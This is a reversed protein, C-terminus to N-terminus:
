VLLSNIRNNTHSSSHNDIGFIVVNWALDNNFNWAGKGHYAIGYGRCVCKEKVNRKVINTM